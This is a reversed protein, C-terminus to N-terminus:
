YWVAVGVTVTDQRAANPVYPAEASGDGQVIGAFFADGGARDDRWELRVLANGAPRWDVTATTSAVWPVPWFMASAQGKPDGGRWERFADTRASFTWNPRVRFAGYLAGAAWGSQGFTTQEVGFDVHAGLTLRGPNVFAYADFLHRWPSGEAAGDPRERGGMYLFQGSAFGDSATWAASALVSKASNGDVVSNWGNVVAAMATWTGNVPVTARLGTHYFPLGFFLNSRSWHPSDRVPMTEPGVPSLFVGAELKVEGLTFGGRAEQVHQWLGPGSGPVGQGGAVVPEAAYYSAGTRGTQLVVRGTAGGSEWSAGLAANALSLTGHHHDFARLAVLNNSPRQISWTADTEAYAVPTIASPPEAHEPADAWVTRAAFLVLVPLVRIALTM